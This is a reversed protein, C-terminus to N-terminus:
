RLTRSGPRSSRGPAPSRIGAGGSHRAFPDASGWPRRRDASVAAAAGDLDANFQASRGRSRARQAVSRLPERGDRDRRARRRHTGHGLVSRRECLISTRSRGRTSIPSPSSGRRPRAAAAAARRVRADLPGPFQGRVRDGRAREDGRGRRRAPRRAARGASVPRTEPDARVDRPPRGAALHRRLRRREGALVTSGVRALTGDEEAAALDFRGLRLATRLQRQASSAARLVRAARQGAHGQRLLVPRHAASLPSLLPLVARRRRRDRRARAGRRRHRGGVEDAALPYFNHSRAVGALDPYFRRGHARASSASSCSRWRRKRSATRRRGRPVAEGRPQVHVRLRAQDADPLQACASTRRARSRQPLMCPTTSGPSRSTSALGRAPEVLARRAPVPRRRAVVGPRARSPQRCRRTSSAGARDRRRRRTWRSTACATRSSSSTSSTPAWCSRRRCTSAARRSVPRRRRSEALLLDVFALGARRQRRAVRRRHPLLTTAPDFTARDFDAVVGRSRTAQPVRPDRRMLERRLDEVRRSTPSRARGCGTRRARVRDAGQALELLPQARRPVRPERGPVTACSSRSSACIARGASTGATPRGSCSTASASTARGHLACSRAAADALGEASVVRRGIARWRRTRPAREVAAHDPHRAPARRVRRAFELGADAIRGGDRPFEIDSIVGLINTRTTSSTGGRRRTRRCLLIKPRAQLRMLKHSLNIGEPVLSHAHQMLEAYIMPLFSSYYRVNDEIVLIAQVGLAGTDHAVNRGTRSTSSSRPSSAPRRGALSVRSRTPSTARPRSRARGRAHRLGARRGAHRGRGGAAAARADDGVHRRRQTSAIVLDFRASEGRWRSRRTRRRWTRSAPRRLARELDLFEKLIVEDCSATRPSSSRTTCARSSCSTTSAFGRWIRSDRCGATEPLLARTPASDSM